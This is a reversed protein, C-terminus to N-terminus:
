QIAVWVNGRSVGGVSLVVEIAAGTPADIPIEVNVQTLGATEGPATGAYVVNASNGGITMTPLTPLQAARPPVSDAASGTPLDLGTAFFVAVTGRILPNAPGQVTGTLGVAAAYNKGATPYVFIGPQYRAAPVVIRASSIGYRTVQVIVSDAASVTEPVVVNILDSRTYLVAGATGNFFVQVDAVTTALVLGDESVPGHGGPPGLNGGYISVIEGPALKAPDGSAANVVDGAAFAPSADLQSIEGVFVGPGRMVVWDPALVQAVMGAPIENQLNAIVQYTTTDIVALDALLRKTGPVYAASSWRTGNPVQAITQGTGLAIFSGDTTFIADDTAALVSSTINHPVITTCRTFGVAPDLDCAQIGNGSSTLLRGMQDFVLPSYSVPSGAVQANVPYTSTTQVLNGNLYLHVEACTPTGWCPSARVILLQSTPDVQGTFGYPFNAPPFQIDQDLQETDLNMRALHGQSADTVIWAYQADPTFCLVSQGNALVITQLLAGTSIRYVQIEDGSAETVFTPLEAAVRDAARNALVTSPTASPAPILVSVFGSYPMEQQTDTNWLTFETLGPVRANPSVIFEAVDDHVLHLPLLIGNWQVAIAGKALLAYTRASPSSFTLQIPKTDATTIWNQSLTIQPTQSFLPSFVCAATLFIRQSIRMRGTNTCFLM